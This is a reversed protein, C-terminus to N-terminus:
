STGGWENTATNNPLTANSPIRTNVDWETVLNAGGTGAFNGTGVFLRDTTGDERTRPTSCAM